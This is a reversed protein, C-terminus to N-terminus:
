SKGDEIVLSPIFGGNPFENLEVIGMISSVSVNTSVGILVGASVSISICSSVVASVITSVCVFVFIVYYEFSGIYVSRNFKCFAM